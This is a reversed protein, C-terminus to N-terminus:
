SPDQRIVKGNNIRDMKLIVTDGPVVMRKFKVNDMKLFYTNWDSPNEQSHLALIGGTQALAEMQLVGPFVPNGPFHGQFFSENASVNKLGVIRKGPELEVIRDVLLFPFRHPLVEAIQRIDLIM